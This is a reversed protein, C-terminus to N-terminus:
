PHFAGRREVGAECPGAAAARVEEGGRGFLPGPRAQQALDRGSPSQRPEAARRRASTASSIRATSSRSSRWGGATSRAISSACTRRSGSATTTPFAKSRSRACARIDGTRRWGTSRRSRTASSRATGGGSPSTSSAPSSRCAGPPSGRRHGSRRARRDCRASRKPRGSGRRWRREGRARRAWTRRSRGGAQESEIIITKVLTSALEGPGAAPSAPLAWALDCAPDRSGLLLDTVARAGSEDAVAAGLAPEGIEKRLTRDVAEAVEPDSDYYDVLSWALDWTGLRDLRTGPPATGLRGALKVLSKEPLAVVLFTSREDPTLPSLLGVPRCEVRTAGRRSGTPASLTAPGPPARYRGRRARM